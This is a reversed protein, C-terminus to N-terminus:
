GQLPQVLSGRFLLRLQIQLPFISNLPLLPTDLYTPMSTRTSRFNMPFERFSTLRPMERDNLIKHMVEFELLNGSMTTRDIELSVVRPIEHTLTPGNSRPVLGHKSVHIQRALLIVFLRITFLTSGQFRRELGRHKRFFHNIGHATLFNPSINTFFKLFSSFLTM